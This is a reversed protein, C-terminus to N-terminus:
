DQNLIVVNLSLDVQAHQRSGYIQGSVANSRSPVVRAALRVVPFLPCKAQMQDSCENSPSHFPLVSRKTIYPYLVSAITKDHIYMNILEPLYFDLDEDPLSDLRNGSHLSILTFFSAKYYSFLLRFIPVAFPKAFILIELLKRRWITLNSTVVLIPSEYLFFLIFIM